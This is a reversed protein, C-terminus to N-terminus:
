SFCIKNQFIKVVSFSTIYCYFFLYEVSDKIYRRGFLFAVYLNFIERDKAGGTPSSGVVRRNVAAHELATVIKCRLKTEFIHDAKGVM